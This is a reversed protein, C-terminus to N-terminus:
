ARGPYGPRPTPGRGPPRDGIRRVDGRVPGGGPDRPTPRHAGVDNGGNGLMKDASATGHITDARNTGDCEKAGVSCSIVKAFAVGTVLLMGALVFAFLM